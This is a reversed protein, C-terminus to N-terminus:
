VKNSRRPGSGSSGDHPHIDTADIAGTDDDAGNHDPSHGPNISEPNKELIPNGIPRLFIPRLNRELRSQAAFPIGDAGLAICYCKRGYATGLSHAPIAQSRQSV